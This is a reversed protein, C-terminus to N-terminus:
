KSRTSTVTSKSQIFARYGPFMQTKSVVGQDDAESPCPLFATVIGTSRIKPNPICSPLHMSRLTALVFPRHLIQSVEALQFTVIHSLRFTPLPTCFSVYQPSIHGSLGETKRSHPTNGRTVMQASLAYSNLESGITELVRSPSKQRM